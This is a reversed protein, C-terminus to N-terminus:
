SLKNSNMLATVIEDMNMGRSGKVLVGDGEKLYGLLTEILKEKSNFHFVKGGLRGCVDAAIRMQSGFAFFTDFRLDYVIKGLRKHEEKSKEGLELMDGLIIIKRNLRRISQFAEFANAMSTPNANYSDNLIYLGHIRIVQMRKDFGKFNELAHQIRSWPINFHIAVAAAGLANYLNVKGPISLQIHEGHVSMSPFGNKDYAEEIGRVDWQDQFGYMITKYAMDRVTALRPDDGNLFAVGKKALYTLLEAKANLVGDEDGFLLLHGKGINTIVGHTPQAIECLFSIEGFNSTGMELVAIEGEKKWQLISLALGIHNNYNGPNKMVCYQNCLIASIMEKTTTKGNTGTVAIVPFDFQKRYFSALDQLAQLTDHVAILANNPPIDPRNLYDNIVVAGCAGKHLADNVFQHGDCHEGKLAFFLMGERLSRTDISVGNVPITMEMNSHSGLVHAVEKLTLNM